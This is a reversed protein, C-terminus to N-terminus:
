YKKEHMSKKFFGFFMMKLVKYIHVILIKRNCNRKKEKKENVIGRIWKKRGEDKVNKETYVILSKNELNYPSLFIVIL